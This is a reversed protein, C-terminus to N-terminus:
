QLITMYKMMAGSKAQLCFCFSISVAQEHSVTIFTIRFLLPLHVYFGRMCRRRPRIDCPFDIFIFLFLLMNKLLPPRPEQLTPPGLEIVKWYLEFGKDKCIAFTRFNESSANFSRFGVIEFFNYPGHGGQGERAM